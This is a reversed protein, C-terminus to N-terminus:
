DLGCEALTERAVRDWSFRTAATQASSQLFATREGATWGSIRAIAAAWACADGPPVLFGTRDAVVADPLGGCDSALVVGGAAAAEAAVLGFGEYEGTPMVVNPVIVCMAARYAKALEEATLHGLYEVKPSDLLRGEETDRITGAVRLRIDPPLGPLVNRIFWGCGKLPILRGAFLITGDHTGVPDPGSLKTALPVIASNSWGSEAAVAATARSNALVKAGRLLRSGARLYAGYLRGRLGGRRPYSVDTGHAALVVKTGPGRLRALWGLPWIAMDGVLVCKAPRALLLRLATGCGWAILALPGPPHGDSRGSLHITEIACLEALAEALNVSYTEMGGVAPSWKRTVFRIDPPSKDM